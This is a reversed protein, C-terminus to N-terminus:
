GSPRWSRSRSRRRWCSRRDDGCLARRASLQADRDLRRQGMSGAAAGPEALIVRIQARTEAARSVFTTIVGRRRGQTEGWRRARAARKAEIEEETPANPDLPALANMVREPPFAVIVETGERVKSKLTFEGGHLEVLGRVIPLGLGTGEDANKQAM